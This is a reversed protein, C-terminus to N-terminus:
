LLAAYQAGTFACLRALNEDIEVGRDSRACVCGHFAQALYKLFCAGRPIERTIEQLDGSWTGRQPERGVAGAWARAAPRAPDDLTFLQDGIRGRLVREWQPLTSRLLTPGSSAGLALTCAQLAFRPGPPVNNELFVPEAIM